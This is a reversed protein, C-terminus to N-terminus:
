FNLEKCILFSSVTTKRSRAKSLVKYQPLTQMPSLEIIAKFNVIVKRGRSIMGQFTTFGAFMQQHGFRGDNRVGDEVQLLRDISFRNLDINGKSQGEHPPLVDTISRVDLDNDFNKEDQETHKGESGVPDHHPDVKGKLRPQRKRRRRFHGDEKIYEQLSDVLVTWYNDKGWPRAPDKLIKVFCKNFSLNHRVSNKWGQYNGRFFEYNDVLYKNIETLTLKKRPSSLIATSILAIYSHPPKPQATQRSNKRSKLLRETMEGIRHKALPNYSLRRSLNKVKYCHARTAVNLPDAALLKNIISNCTCYVFSAKIRARTIAFVCSVTLCFNVGHVM